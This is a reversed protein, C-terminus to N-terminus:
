GPRLLQTFPETGRTVDQGDLAVLRDQAEVGAREAPSAAEVTEIVPYDLYRMVPRGNRREFQVRGSLMVGLWGAPQQRMFAMQSRQAAELAAQSSALSRMARDIERRVADTSASDYRLRLRELQRRMERPSQAECTDCRTTDQAAAGVPLAALATLAALLSVRVAPGM